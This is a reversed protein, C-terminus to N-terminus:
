SSGREYNPNEKGTSSGSAVRNGELGRWVTRIDRLGEEHTVVGKQGLVLHVVFTAALDGTTWKRPAATYELDTGYTKRHFLGRALFRDAGATWAPSM